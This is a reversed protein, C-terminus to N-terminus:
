LGFSIQTFLLSAFEKEGTGTLQFRSRKEWNVYVSTPAQSSKKVFVRGVEGWSMMSMAQSVLYTTGTADENSSSINLNMASLARLTAANTRDYTAPFDRRKAEDLSATKVTDMSACASLALLLALIFFRRNM